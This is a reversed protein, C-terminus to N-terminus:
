TKVVVHLDGLITELQGNRKRCHRSRIEKHVRDEPVRAARCLLWTRVERGLYGGELYKYM